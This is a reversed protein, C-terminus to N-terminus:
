RKGRRISAVQKKLDAMDLQLQKLQNKLTPVDTSDTSLTDLTNIQSQLNTIDTDHTQVLRGLGTVVNTLGNFNDILPNYNNAIFDNFTDAHQNVLNILDNLNNIPVVAQLRTVHTLAKEDEANAQSINLCLLAVISLSILKNKMMGGEYPVNEIVRKITKIHCNVKTLLTNENFVYYIGKYLLV